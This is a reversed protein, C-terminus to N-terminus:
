SEVRGNYPACTWDSKLSSLDLIGLPTALLVSIENTLARGEHGLQRGFAGGGLVMVKPASKLRHIQPLAFSM